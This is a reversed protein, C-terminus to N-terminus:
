TGKKCCFIDWEKPDETADDLFQITDNINVLFGSKMIGDEMIVKMNTSETLDDLSQIQILDFM